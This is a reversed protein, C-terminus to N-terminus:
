RLNDHCSDLVVSLEFDPLQRHAEDFGDVLCELGQAAAFDVVYQRIKEEHHSPHPINCIAAFHKWVLAPKLATFDKNM